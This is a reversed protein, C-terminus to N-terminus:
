VIGYVAYVLRDAVFLPRGELILCSNNLTISNNNENKKLIIVPVLATSNSCTMVSLNNQNPATFSNVVFRTETRLNIALNYQALGIEESKEAPDYSVYVMRANNILSAAEQPLTLNVTEEPLYRFLLVQNNIRTSWDGNQYSFSQKKYKHQTSDGGSWLFGIVSLIMILAIFITVYIISNKKEKRM